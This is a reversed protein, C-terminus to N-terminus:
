KIEGAKLREHYIEECVKMSESVLGNEMGYKELIEEYNKYTRFIHDFAERNYKRGGTLASCFDLLEWRIDEIQKDVFMKKLEELDSKIEKDHQIALANDESQKKQLKILLEHDKANRDIWKIPKGIRAFFKLVSGVVFNIACIIIVGIYLWKVIDIELVSNLADM